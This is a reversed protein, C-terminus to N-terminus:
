EGVVEEGEADDTRVNSHRTNVAEPIARGVTVSLLLLKQHVLNKVVSRDLDL